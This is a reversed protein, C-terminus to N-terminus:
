SRMRRPVWLATELTLVSEGRQNLATERVRVIGHDPHSQSPRTEIVETELHITDGARVPKPWRMEKVGMGMMGGAIEIGSSLRLRMALAATYWGSAILDKGAVTHMPQPDFQRAFEIMEAERLTHERSRFREGVRFDEFYM